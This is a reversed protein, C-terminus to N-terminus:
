DLNLSIILIVAKQLAEYYVSDPFINLDMSLHSLLPKFQGM